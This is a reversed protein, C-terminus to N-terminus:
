FDCGNGTDGSGFGGNKLIIPPCCNNKFNNKYKQKISVFSNQLPCLTSIVFSSTM